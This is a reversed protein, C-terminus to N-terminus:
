SLDVTNSSEISEGCNHHCVDFYVVVISGFIISNRTM